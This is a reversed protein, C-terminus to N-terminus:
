ATITLEEGTLAFHINQLQHLYKFTNGFSHFGNDAYLQCTFQGDLLYGEISYPISNCGDADYRGLIEERIYFKTYGYKELIEPTLAIPEPFEDFEQMLIFNSGDNCDIGDIIIGDPTIWEVTVIEGEYTLKNGRRLENPQIM